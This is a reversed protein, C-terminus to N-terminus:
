SVEILGVTELRQLRGRLVIPVILVVFIRRIGNRSATSACTSPSFPPM